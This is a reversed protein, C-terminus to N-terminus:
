RANSDVGGSLSMKRQVLTNFNAVWATGASDIAIASPVYIGGATYSSSTAFNSAATFEIVSNGATNAVWVNGSRDLAIGQAGILGAATPATLVSGTLSFEAVTYGGENAVWVNGGADVAIAYPTSLTSSGGMTVAVTFDSPAVGVSPQFPAKASVLSTLATITGNGPNKAIALAAGFTDSAGTAAFLSTCATSSAGNTNVCSALIDALTNLETTPVIV